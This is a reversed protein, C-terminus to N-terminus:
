IARMRAASRSTVQCWPLHRQRRGAAPRRGATPPTLEASPRCDRIWRSVVAGSTGIVQTFENNNWGRLRMQEHIVNVLAVNKPSTTGGRTTM